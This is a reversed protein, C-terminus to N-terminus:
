LRVGGRYVVGVNIRKTKAATSSFAKADKRPSYGKSRKSM